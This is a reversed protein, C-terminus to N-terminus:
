AFAIIETVQPEAQLKGDSFSTPETDTILGFEQAAVGIAKAIDYLNFEGNDAFYYGERGRVAHADSFISDLLVIYLPRCSFSIEGDATYGSM